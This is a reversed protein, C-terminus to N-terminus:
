TDDVDGRAYERYEERQEGIRWGGRGEGLRKGRSARIM